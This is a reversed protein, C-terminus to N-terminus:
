DVGLARTSPPVVALVGTLAGIIMLIIGLWLPGVQVLFGGAAIVFLQVVISPGRAGRARRALSRALFFVVVAALATMVTLSVAVGVELTEATLDRYVLYATLGTLGACELYLLWVAFVLTRPNDVVANEGAM